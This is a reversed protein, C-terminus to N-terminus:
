RLRKSRLMALAGSWAVLQDLVAFAEQLSRLPM